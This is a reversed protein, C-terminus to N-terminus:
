TPTGRAKSRDQRGGVVEILGMTKDDPEYSTLPAYTEFDLWDACSQDWLWIAYEREAIDYDKKELEEIEESIHKAVGFPQFVRLGKMAVFMTDLAKPHIEVKGTAQSAKTPLIKTFYKILERVSNTDARKVEQSDYNASPYEKLWERVTLKSAEFGEVILHYHPHFRKTIPNYTCELKRIGKVSVGRKRLRRTIKKFNKGMQMIEERLSIGEVNPFTLTVFHPDQMAKIPAEYGKLLIGSRIRNCVMCWRQRCYKTKLTKGRQEITSACHFTNWYSKHLPSGEIDVLRLILSNTILKAKAKNILTLDTESAKEPHKELFYGTTSLTDLPASLVPPSLCM